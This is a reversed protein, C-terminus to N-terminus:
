VKKIVKKKRHKSDVKQLHISSALKRERLNAVDEEIFAFLNKFQGADVVPNKELKAQLKGLSQPLKAAFELADKKEQQTGHESQVYIKKFLLAVRATFLQVKDESLGDLSKLIASFEDELSDAM